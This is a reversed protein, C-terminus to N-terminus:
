VHQVSGGVGLGVADGVGLGVDLGVGLGVDFGVGLGVDFGVGDGVGAGVHTSVPSKQEPVSALSVHQSSPAIHTSSGVEPLPPLATYLHVIGVGDGVGAGVGEGVGAGTHTAVPSKQEPVSALSVHQSSPAIHTSSGVEPLPPLATYL